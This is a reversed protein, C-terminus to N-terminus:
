WHIRGGAPSFTDTPPGPWIALWASCVWAVGGGGCVGGGVRVWVGAADYGRRCLVEGRREREEGRRGGGGGGGKRGRARGKSEKRSERRSIGEDDRGEGGRRGM